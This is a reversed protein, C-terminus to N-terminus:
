ERNILGAIYGAGFGDDIGVVAVNPSCSSMMSLLASIGKFVGYGGSTPVAIVPKDSIGGAVSALAGDMGAVVIVVRSDFIHEKLLSIRHIGAVGVDYVEYVNFNGMVNLTIVSEKAVPIDSTGATVVLIKGRGKERRDIIRFFSFSEEDYQFDPFEKLLEIAFEKKLRTVLVNKNKKEIISIASKIDTLKKGEALIVEPLHTRVGRSTDLTINELVLFPLEKIKLIADDVSIKGSSVDRIVKKLFEEDM